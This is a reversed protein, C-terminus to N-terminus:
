RTQEKPEARGGEPGSDQGDARETMARLSSRARGLRSVLTGEHVGLVAAADALSMGELAVLVLAERQDAPLRAMATEVEGLLPHEGAANGPLPETPLDGVVVLHTARRRLTDRHINLMIKWIWGAVPGDGRWRHRRALARELSNQVLDDASAADRTLARAARRLRPIVAEIDDLVSM